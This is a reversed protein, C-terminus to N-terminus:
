KKKSNTKKIKKTVKKSLPKAVKKAGIKRKAVKKELEAKQEKVYKAVANKFDEAKKGAKSLIQDLEERKLDAVEAAKDKAKDLTEVVSPNKAIKVVIAVIEEGMMAVDKVLGKTDGSTLKKRIKKGEEPAFLIGSIAGTLLGLGLAIRGAKKGM